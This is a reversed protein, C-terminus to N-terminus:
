SIFERRLNFFNPALAEPWDGTTIFSYLLWMLWGVRGNGDKFPHIMEFHYYALDPSDFRMEVFAECYSRMARPISQPDTALELSSFSVPMVRWGTKNEPKVIQGLCYILEELMHGDVPEDGWTSASIKTLVLAKALGKLAQPTADEQLMCEECVLALELRTLKTDVINVIIM